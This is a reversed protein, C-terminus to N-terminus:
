TTIGRQRPRGNRPIPEPGDQLGQGPSAHRHREVAERHEAADDPGYRHEPLTARGPDQVWRNRVYGVPLPLLHNADAEDWGESPAGGRAVTHSRGFQGPVSFNYGMCPIGARGM